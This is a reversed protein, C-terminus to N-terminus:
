SGKISRAFETAQELTLDEHVTVGLPEPLSESRARGQGDVLRGGSSFTDSFSTELDSKLTPPLSEWQSAVKRFLGSMAVLTSSTLEVLQPLPLSLLPLDDGAEELRRVWREVNSEDGVERALPGFRYQHLQYAAFLTVLEDATCVSGMHEPDKFVRAYRVPEEAVPEAHVIAQALVERAAADGLVERASPGALDVADLTHKARLKKQSEIRAGEHVREHVLQVRIKQKIGQRPFDFPESAPLPQALALALESAGIDDPPNHGM